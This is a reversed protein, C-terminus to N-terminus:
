RRRWPTAPRRRHQPLRHRRCCNALSNFRPASCNVAPLALKERRAAAVETERRLSEDRPAEPRAGLLVELRRRLEEMGGVLKVQDM